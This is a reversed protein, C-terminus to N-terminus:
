EYDGTADPYEISMTIASATVGLDRINISAKYDAYVIIELPNDDEDELLRNM